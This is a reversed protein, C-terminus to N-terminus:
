QISDGFLPALPTDDVPLKLMPKQPKLPKRLRSTDKAQLAAALVLSDALILAEELVEQHCRAIERARYQELNEEINEAILAQIAAEDREDCSIILLLLLCSVLFRIYKKSCCDM